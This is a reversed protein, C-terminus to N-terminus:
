GRKDRHRHWQRRNPFNAGRGLDGLEASHAIVKRALDVCGRFDRNADDMTRNARGGSFNPDTRGPDPFIHRVIEM